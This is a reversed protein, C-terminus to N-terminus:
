AASQRSRAFATALLVVLAAVGAAVATVTSEPESAIRGYTIWGLGWAIAIAVAWRAGFRFALAVGIATVAAIVAVAAGEEVAGELRVGASGLTGAVNPCVAVCTWGLYLGFTGDTVITEGLGDRPHRELLMVIRIVAVLLAVIVVVSLWLADTQIVFLWGANLVMSAVVWWGIARHRPATTQAPLWQWITYALLGAYIVSWISFAPGDPALLTADDALAGDGSEAVETGLVGTGVLFGVICLAM